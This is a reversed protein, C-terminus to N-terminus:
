LESTALKRAVPFTILQIGMAVATILITPWLSGNIFAAVLGLFAVGDCGAWLIINGISYAGFRIRGDLRSRRFLFMRIVFCIPVLTFLMAANVYILIPQPSSTPPHPFVLVIAAFACEGFLLAFWIIRLTMLRKALPISADGPQNVM